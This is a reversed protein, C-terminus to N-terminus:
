LKQEILNEIDTILQDTTLPKYTGKEIQRLMKFLSEIFDKQNQSELFLEYQEQDEPLNFEINIKM